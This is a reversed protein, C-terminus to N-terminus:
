NCCIKKFIIYKHIKLNALSISIYQVCLSIRLNLLKHIRGVEPLPHFPTPTSIDIKHSEFTVCISWSVRIQREHSSSFLKRNYFIFLELPRFNFGSKKIAFFIVSASSNQPETPKKSEVDWTISYCMFYMVDRIVSGAHQPLTRYHWNLQGCFPELILFNQYSDYASHSIYGANEGGFKIM